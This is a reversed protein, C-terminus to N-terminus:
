RQNGKVEPAKAADNIKKIDQLKLKSNSQKNKRRCSHDQAQGDEKENKEIIRSM